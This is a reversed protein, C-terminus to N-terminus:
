AGPGRGSGSTTRTPSALRGRVHADIISLAPAADDYLHCYIRSFDGLRVSADVGAVGDPTFRVSADSSLATM